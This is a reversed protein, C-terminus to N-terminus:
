NDPRSVDGGARTPPRSQIQIPCPKGDYTAVYVTRRETVKEIRYGFTKLIFAFQEDSSVDNRYVLDHNLPM